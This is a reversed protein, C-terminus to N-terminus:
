ISLTVNYRLLLIGEAVVVESRGGSRSSVRLNDRFLSYPIPQESQNKRLSDGGFIDHLLVVERRNARVGTRMREYGETPCMQVKECWIQSVVENNSHPLSSFLWINVIEEIHSLFKSYHEMLALVHSNNRRIPICSLCPIIDSAAIPGTTYNSSTTYYSM